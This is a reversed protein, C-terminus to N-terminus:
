HQSRNSYAFMMQKNQVRYYRIKIIARANKDAARLIMIKKPKDIQIQLHCIRLNRNILIIWNRRVLPYDYRQDDEKRTDFM